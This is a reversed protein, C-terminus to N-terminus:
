DFDIVGSQLENFNYNNKLISRSGVNQICKSKPIVTHSM